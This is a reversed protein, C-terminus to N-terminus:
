LSWLTASLQRVNPTPQSCVKLHAPLGSNGYTQPPTPAWHATIWKSVHPASGRWTRLCSQTATANPPPWSWGWLHQPLHAQNHLFIKLKYSIYESVEWTNQKHYCKGLMNWTHQNEQKQPPRQQSVQNIMSSCLHMCVSCQMLNPFRQQLHWGAVQWSLINLIGNETCLSLRKM